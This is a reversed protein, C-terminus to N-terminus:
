LKTNWGDLTGTFERQHHDYRHTPPDYVAGVDVVLHCQALVEPKRTRVVPSQQYEPLVKLMAIALAEDCHFSGDHTGIISCSTAPVSSLVSTSQIAPHLILAATSSSMMLLTSTALRAKKSTASIM